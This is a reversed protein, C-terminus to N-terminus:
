SQGERDSDDSESEEGIGEDSPVDGNLGSTLDNGPAGEADADDRSTAETNDIIDRYSDRLATIAELPLLPVIAPAIMYMQDDDPDPILVGVQTVAKITAKVTNDFGAENTSSPDRFRALFSEIADVPLVVPEDHSDRYAHLERMHVLLLTAERSLPRDRRLMVPAAPDDTQRKFAVEYDRDIVLDMFMDALRSRLLEEWALVADWVVPYQSRTVFRSTLLSAQARRATDPMADTREGFADPAMDDPLTM